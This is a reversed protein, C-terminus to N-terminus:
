PWAASALDVRGVIVRTLTHPASIRLPLHYSVWDSPVIYFVRLGPQAFYSRSWTELMATAEDDYLGRGVLARHMSGRLRDLAARSYDADIFGRFRALERATDGRVLTVSDAERYAATGNPRVDLVWVSGLSVSPSTLWRTDRSARIRLENASFDTRVVAPLNAMGRYFIYQESEGGVAVPRSAVARPALWVHSTTPLLTARERLTVGHWRLSGVVSDSLHAGNWGNSSAEGNPYFENLIGGRFGVDVDFPPISDGVAAHFYIVPTELRMTVDPRGAGDTTKDLPIRRTNRTDVSAFQHVFPPLPDYDAVRNLDGQQEGNAAHRTTITGWEHVILKAPSSPRSHRATFSVAAVGCLLVTGLTRLM